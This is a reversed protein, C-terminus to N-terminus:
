CSQVPCESKVNDSEFICLCFMLFINNKEVLCINLTPLYFLFFLKQFSNKKRSELFNYDTQLDVLLFIRAKSGEELRYPSM